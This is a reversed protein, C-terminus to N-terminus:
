NTSPHLQELVLREVQSDESNDYNWKLELEDIKEKKKLNAQFAESPDTVNQLMSISHKGQLLPFKRLELVKLGDQEKIHRARKLHIEHPKPDEPRICYAVSVMIALENILSHMMFNEKDNINQRRIMSGSSLEDFYEDGAEELSKNSRSQHVLGEVIWLQFMTNKNLISNKPFISCYSFCRKLPAPLYHYSLLLAPLVKVNPLDWINSKLVRNWEKEILKTRLLGGLAEAALPLGACRKAIEKGIVELKSQKRSQNCCDETPLSRLYHIPLFTQMALAVNEDRTTIIIKSGREGAKFIVKLKNWDDYSGDWIDDLVLLFRKNCISQQLEVQLTNLNNTVVSNSSVSELLSKTVKCVDFDKSIYAWAKLDFKEKVDHDNYLLKALNTKGLGGM